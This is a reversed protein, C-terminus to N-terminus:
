PSCEKKKIVRKCYLRGKLSKDRVLKVFNGVLDM